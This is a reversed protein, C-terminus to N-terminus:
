EGAASKTETKPTSESSPPEHDDETPPDDPDTDARDRESPPTAEDWWHMPIREPGEWFLRRTATGPRREDRAIRSLYGQDIGREGALRSLDGRNPYLEL